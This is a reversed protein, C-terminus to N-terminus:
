KKASARTVGLQLKVIVVLRRLFSNLVPGLNSYAEAQLRDECRLASLRKQTHQNKWGKDEGEEVGDGADEDNEAACERGGPMAVAGIPWGEEGGYPQEQACQHTAVEDSLRM